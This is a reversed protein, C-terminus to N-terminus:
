VNTCKQNLLKIVINIMIDEENGMYEKVRKAIWPKCVKNIVDFAFFDDWNLKYAFISEQDKPM